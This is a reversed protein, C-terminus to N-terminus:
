QVLYLVENRRMWPLTFPSNYFAYRVPGTVKLGESEIYADLLAKHEAMNEDGWFGSFSIAVMNEPTTEYLRIREDTPKPATKVSISSPLRFNTRWAGSAQKAQTVPVTMAIEQGEASQTVPVTMAIEESPQNAGSIYDFLIRFAANGAEDRDEGKITVEALLMPAYARHEINGAQKTVKYQPAEYDGGCASLIGMAAVMIMALKNHM